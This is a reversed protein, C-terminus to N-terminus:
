FVMELAERTIDNPLNGIYLKCGPAGGSHGGGGFDRSGGGDAGKNKPRAVSVRVPECRPDERFKYVNDLVQIAVRASQVEEYTVFASAAKGTLSSQLVHVDAVRGYTSFILHIEEEKIDLPLRGVFLKREDEGM